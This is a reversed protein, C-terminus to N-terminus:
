NGYDESYHKEEVFDPAEVTETKVEETAELKPRNVTVQPPEEGMAKKFAEPDFSELLLRAAAVATSHNKSQTAIKTMNDIIRVFKTKADKISSQEFLRQRIIEKDDGIKPRAGSYNPSGVTRNETNGAQPRVRGVWAVKALLAPCPLMEYLADKPTMFKPMPRKRALNKEERDAHVALNASEEM